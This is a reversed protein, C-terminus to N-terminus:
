LRVELINFEIVWVWPNVDWGFGKKAYIKDWLSVFWNLADHKENEPCGERFVDKSGVIDQVREVRVGKVELWIRAAEKPMHISPRWKFMSPPFSDDETTGYNARYIFCGCEGMLCDKGSIPICCGDSNFDSHSEASICEACTIFSWTERVYLIDGPQYPCEMIGEPIREHTKYPVGTSCIWNPQPKIIRRTQTRRRDLTARVMETNFDIPLERM